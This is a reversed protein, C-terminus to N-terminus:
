CHSKRKDAALACARCRRSTKGRWTILVLNRGALPHGRKCETKKMNWHRGKAAADAMNDANTGIFLHTPNVCHRVDCRHLAQLGPPIPGFSLEWAVRHAPYNVGRHKIAGYGKDSTAGFWLFCGTNPEPISYKELKDTLSTPAPM